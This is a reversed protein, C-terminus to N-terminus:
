CLCDPAGVGGDDRYKVGDLGVGIPGTFLAVYQGAGIRAPGFRISRDPGSPGEHAAGDVESFPADFREGVPEGRGVIGQEGSHRHVPEPLPVEAFSEMALGAIETMLGALGCLRLEEVPQGRLEDAAPKAETVDMAEDDRRGGILPRRLSFPRQLGSRGFGGVVLVVRVVALQPSVRHTAELGLGNPVVQM